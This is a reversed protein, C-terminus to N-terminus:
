LLARIEAALAGPASAPVMHDAGPLVVHRGGPSQRARHAHSATAAERVSRTMGPSTRGASVVTLPVGDLAPPADLLRRLDGQTDELERARTRMAAVTFGEARLDAAADPPLASTLSRHVFGLLGARALLMSLHQGAREQRRMGPSLLLPCSEDAPDVLVLGAIRDPREAAALRVVPGGWSHGVLVFPGAGLPELHGLLDTLDRALADLRRSGPAPASRGLGARDYVVTPAADGLERQVAAWWSRGAALGGEFVVTPGAGDRAAPRRQLALRRGDRTPAFGPAGQSHGPADWAARRGGDREGAM